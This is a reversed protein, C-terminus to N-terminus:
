PLRSVDMDITLVGQALSIVPDGGGPAAIQVDWVGSYRLMQTAGAAFAVPNATRLTPGSLLIGSVTALETTTAATLTLSAGDEILDIEFEADPASADRSARVQATWEMGDALDDDVEIKLTLTDGAYHFVDVSDPRTDIESV